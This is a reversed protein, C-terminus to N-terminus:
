ANAQDKTWPSLDIAEWDDPYWRGNILTDGGGVFQKPCIVKKETGPNLLAGWTHFTSNAVIYHDCLTMVCMDVGASAREHYLVNLGEFVPMKQCAPIDDSFVLFTVERGEFRRIAERYYDMPLNLSAIFLYDARRVGLAVIEGVAQERYARMIGRAEDVVDQKFRFARLVALQSARWDQYTGFRGLLDYHGDRAFRKTGEMMRSFDVFRLPKFERYLIFRVLRYLVRTAVVCFPEAIRYFLRREALRKLVTEQTYNWSLRRFCWGFFGTRDRSLITFPVDFFHFFTMGRGAGRVEDFFAIEQGTLEGIHILSALSGMQAGLQDGEAITSDTIM